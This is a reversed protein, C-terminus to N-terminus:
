CDTGEGNFIWHSRHNGYVSPWPKHDEASEVTFLWSVQPVGFNLVPKAVEQLRFLLPTGQQGVTPRQDVVSVKRVEVLRSAADVAQRPTCGADEQPPRHPQTMARVPSRNLIRLGNRRM